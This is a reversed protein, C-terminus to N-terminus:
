PLCAQYARRARMAQETHQRVEIAAGTTEEGGCLELEHHSMEHRVKIDFKNVALLCAGRRVRLVLPEAQREGWVRGHLHHEPLSM